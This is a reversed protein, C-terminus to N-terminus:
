VAPACVPEHGQVPSIVREITSRSFCTLASERSCNVVEVQQKKLDDALKSFHEIWRHYPNHNGLPAVHDGFWHHSNKGRKCDFGLLLIRRAGWLFALNMAQYGSNNGFHIIGQQTSLGPMHIGVIANIGHKKAAGEDQTWLEGQFSQRM